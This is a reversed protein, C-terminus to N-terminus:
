TSSKYVVILDLTILKLSSVFPLVISKFRKPSCKCLVGLTKVICLSILLGLSSSSKITSKGRLSFNFLKSITIGKCVSLLVVYGVFASAFGRTFRGLL